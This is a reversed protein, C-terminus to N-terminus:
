KTTTAIKQAMENGATEIARMLRSSYCGVDVFAVTVRFEPFGGAMQFLVRLIRENKRYKGARM